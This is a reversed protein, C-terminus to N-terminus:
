SIWAGPLKSKLFDIGGSSQIEYFGFRRLNVKFSIGGPTHGRTPITKIKLKGLMISDGAEIIRLDRSGSPRPEIKDVWTPCGFEKDLQALGGAHDPHTHTLLIIKPKVGLAYTKKIIVM